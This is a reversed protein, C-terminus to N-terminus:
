RNLKRDRMYYATSNITVKMISVTNTDAVWAPFNGFSYAKGGGPAILNTVAGSQYCNNGNIAQLYNVAIVTAYPGSKNVLEIAMLDNAGTSAIIYYKTGNDIVTDSITGSPTCASSTLSSSSSSSNEKKCGNSIILLIVIFFYLATRMNKLQIKV